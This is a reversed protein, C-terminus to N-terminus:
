IMPPNIIPPLSVPLAQVPSAHYSYDSSVHVIDRVIPAIKDIGAQIMEQVDQVDDDDVESRYDEGSQRAYLSKKRKSRGSEPPTISGNTGRGLASCAAAMRSVQQMCFRKFAKMNDKIFREIM